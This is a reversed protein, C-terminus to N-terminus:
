VTVVMYFAYETPFTSAHPVSAVQQLVDEKV